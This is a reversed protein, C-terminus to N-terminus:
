LLHEYNERIICGGRKAMEIFPAPNLAEPVVVGKQKIQGKALLEAALACTSEVMNGSGGSFGLICACPQGNKKGVIRYQQGGYPTGTTDNSVRDLLGIAKSHTDSALFAIAFDVPAVKQGKVDIPESSNMGWQFMQRVLDNGIEKPAMGTKFTVLKVEPIAYPMTIVAPINAVVVEFPQSNLPHIIEPLSFPEVEVFKGDKCIVPNAFINRWLRDIGTLPFRYRGGGAALHIEEVEDMKDVGYRTIINALGPIDGFCILASTGADKVEDNLAMVAKISSVNANLDVYDKGSKAAARVTPVATLEYPGTTNIVIDVDEMAKLLSQEDTADLEKVSIDKGSNAAEDAAKRAKQLDIEGIVIKSFADSKAVLQLTKNGYWGVGIVLARKKDVM